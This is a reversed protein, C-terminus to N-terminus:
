AIIQSNTTWLLESDREWTSIHINLAHLYGNVHGAHSEPWVISMGITCLPRNTLSLYM